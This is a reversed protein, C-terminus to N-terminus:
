FLAFQDNALVFYYSETSEVFWPVKESSTSLRGTQGRERKNARRTACNVASIRTVTKSAKSGRM